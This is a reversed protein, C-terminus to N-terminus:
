ESSICQNHNTYDNALIISLIKKYTDNNNGFVYLIVVELYVYARARKTETTLILLLFHIHSMYLQSKDVDSYM